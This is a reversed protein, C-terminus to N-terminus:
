ADAGGDMWVPALDLDYLDEVGGYPAGYEGGSLPSHLAGGESYKTSQHTVNGCPSVDSPDSTNQQVKLSPDSTEAMLPRVNARCVGMSELWDDLAMGADDAAEEAVWVFTRKAYRGTKNTVEGVRLLWGLEEARELFGRAARETVHCEQRITRIGVTFYPCPKGKHRMRSWCYLAMDARAVRNRGDSMQGIMRALHHADFSGLPYYGAPM